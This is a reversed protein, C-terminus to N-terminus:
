PGQIYAKGKGHQFTTSSAPEACGRFDASHSAHQQEALWPMSSVVNSSAHIPVCNACLSPLSCAASRAWEAPDTLCVASWQGDPKCNSISPTLTRPGRSGSASTLIVPPQWHPLHKLLLSHTAAAAMWGITHQGLSCWAAQVLIYPAQRQVAQTQVQFQRWRLMACCLWAGKLQSTTGTEAIGGGPGPLAALPIACSLWAPQDSVHHRGRCQRRKSCFKFGASCQMASSHLCRSITLVTGSGIDLDRVTLDTVAPQWQLTYATDASRM